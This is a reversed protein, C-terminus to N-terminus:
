ARVHVFMHVDGVVRKTRAVAGEGDLNGEYGVDGEIADFYEKGDNGWGDFLALRDPVGDHDLDLLALDGRLPTTTLSLFNHGRRADDLLYPAYAYRSGPQFARSGAQAYCFCPFIMSWPCLIGYWLTYPTRKSGPPDERRGLEERAIDLAADWLMTQEARLLRKTRTVKWGRPLANEDALLEMLLTDTSEDVRSEPYGLWYKARRVAAATEEDYVGEIPGPEFVGYPNHRLELQLERVQEGRMPPSTLTLLLGLGTAAQIAAM